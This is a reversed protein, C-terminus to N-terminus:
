QADTFQIITALLVIILIIILIIIIPIIAQFYNIQKLNIPIAFQFLAWDITTIRALLPSAILLLKNFHPNLPVKSSQYNM